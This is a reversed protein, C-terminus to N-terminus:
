KRKKAKKQCEPCIGSFLFEHHIDTYDSMKTVTQDAHNHIPGIDVLKGCRRCLLHDHDKLNWEYRDSMNPMRIRRIENEDTLLQLNRYVTGRSVHPDIEHIRVYVEDATFHQDNQRIIDLVAQRQKTNRRIM